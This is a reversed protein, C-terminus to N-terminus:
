LAIEYCLCTEAVDPARRVTWVKDRMLTRHQM